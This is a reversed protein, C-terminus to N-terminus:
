CIRVLILICGAKLEEAVKLVIDGVIYLAAPLHIEVYGGRSNEVKM